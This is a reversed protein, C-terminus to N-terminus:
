RARTARRRPPASAIAAAVLELGREVAAAIERLGDTVAEAIRTADTPQGAPSLELDDEHEDM